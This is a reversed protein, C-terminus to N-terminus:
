MCTPSSWSPKCEFYTKFFFSFSVFETGVMGPENFVTINESILTTGILIQLFDRDYSRRYGLAKWPPAAALARRYLRKKNLPLIQKLSSLTNHEIRLPRNPYDVVYIILLITLTTQDIGSLNQEEAVNKEDSTFHRTKLCSVMRQYM